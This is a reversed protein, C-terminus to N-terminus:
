GASCARVLLEVIRNAHAGDRDLDPNFDAVSLGIPRGEAVLIALLEDLESWSLGQPQPYSVAPLETEDLADLDLHIWLSDSGRLHELSQRAAPAPGIERIRPADLQKVTAPVRHREIAVDPDLNAPRHGLLVTRRPSILPPRGEIAALAEPGQGHVIALDMDASEGTPSSDGDYYDAHGDIFCLGAERGARRVGGAVGVLLSCDGGLLLPREDRSLARGVAATIAASADVVSEFAIIGTREDRVPPRLVSTVDGVDRAGLREVLAASRLADPAREEGEGAAASDLPAGQV